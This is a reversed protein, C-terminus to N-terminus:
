RLMTRIIRAKYVIGWIHTIKNHKICCQIWQLLMPLLKEMTHSSSSHRIFIWNPPKIKVKLYKNTHQLTTPHNSSNHIAELNTEVMQDVIRHVKLRIDWQQNAQSRRREGQTQHQIIQVKVWSLDMKHFAKSILSIILEALSKNFVEKDKWRSKHWSSRCSWRSSNSLHFIIGVRLIIILILMRLM